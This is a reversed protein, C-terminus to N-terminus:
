SKRVGLKVVDTVKLMKMVQDSVERENELVERYRARLSMVNYAPQVLDAFDPDNALVSVFEAKNINPAMGVYQERKRFFVRGTESKMNQLGTQVLLDLIETEMSEMQKSREEDVAKSRDKEASLAEYKQTLERFRDLENSM